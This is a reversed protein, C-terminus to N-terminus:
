DYGLSRALDGCHKEYTENQQQTWADREPLTDAVFRKGKAKAYAFRYLRSRTRNVKHRCAEAWQSESMKLDLPALLNTTVFEYDNLVDELRLLITNQSMLRGTANAWNWCVQEFKDMAIWARVGEESKPVVQTNHMDRRVYISRIVKAPHRALHFVPADFVEILDDVSHHLGPNVDVFQHASNSTRTEGIRAKYDELVPRTYTKGLYWSLLWYERNGIFEHVADAGQCLALLHAVFKSGSRPMGTVFAYKM